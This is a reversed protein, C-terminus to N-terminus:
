PSVPRDIAYTKGALNVTVPEEFTLYQNQEASQGRALDFYADSFQSLRIAQAEQEATVTADVWRSGRRFFTKGGVRRVNEVAYARGEADRAVVPTSNAAPARGVLAPVSSAPGSVPSGGLGGGIQAPRGGATAIGGPRAALSGRGAGTPPTAPLSRALAASDYEGYTVTNQLEAKYARQQVGAAGAVEHLQRLSDVARMRNAAHANLGVTEDALFSTYPTLIGYQKSLEVLEDTLEKSTGHLDIQDILFGVRRVAWLSEIYRHQTGDDPGALRVDFSTERTERGVKGKLRVKAPGSGHYRGTLVLQGGEFLDPVDRPYIRSVETGDFEVRIDTLVPSTLKRYFRSVTAEIDDDPKVFESTGGNGGSVRDLLRANVDFGVGFAFVRAHETNARRANEAIAAEKTEGATPLGDTLFLVYNPRTDDKIQALAAKLAEDINTSGGPFINDVFRRAEAASDKGYRQLEPKYTEVRDDYVVINFTDDERLNDLVFKLANKAQEIKKGTMSGSRDLVFIVTKPEPKTDPRRVEPSALLLFYGDEGGSPRHSLVSAGLAGEALTTVLRFDTTPITDRALYRVTALRDGERRIEVEHAPSYISKIPETSELRLSLELRGIPKATFKQTGFPYVFEVVDRDRKLLRTYRLTVTRDAGPPIPFVSTRILATGMYELLAPDKKSRVIQEYVARAEDKPLLKGPLEKGDVLLVVNQIAGDEPVPFLFESELQASGPNHFTQRIQVEAVQDRVKGDIQVERVEFSRAIPIHSRHDVILGQAPAAPPRALGLLLLFAPAFRRLRDIDM